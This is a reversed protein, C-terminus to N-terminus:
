RRATGMNIGRCRRSDVLVAAWCYSQRPIVVMRGAETRSASTRTNGRAASFRHRTWAVPRLPDAPIIESAKELMAVWQAGLWPVGRDPM